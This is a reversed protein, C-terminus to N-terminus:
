EAITEPQTAKNFIAQMKGETEKIAGEYATRKTRGWFM